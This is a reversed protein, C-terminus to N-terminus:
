ASGGRAGADAMLRDILGMVEPKGDWVPMPRVLNRLMRLDQQWGLQDSVKHLAKAKGPGHLADVLATTKLGLEPLAELQMRLRRVRRRWRHVNEPSDDHAARKQAKRARRESHLLGAKIDSAKVAHWPLADLWLAVDALQKRRRGLLPDKGLQNRMVREGRWQLAACAPGLQAEPHETQLREAAEAVVHADRMDSLSDGLRQLSADARDLDLQSRELLALLGRLRRIAKRASHIAPEPTGTASLGQLIAACERKALAHAKEGVGQKSM